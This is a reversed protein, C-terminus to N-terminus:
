IIRNLLEAQAEEVQYDIFTREVLARRERNFQVILGHPLNSALEESPQWDVLYYTKGDRKFRDPQSM